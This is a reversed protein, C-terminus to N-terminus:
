AAHARVQVNHPAVWVETTKPSGVLKAFVRGCICEHGLLYFLYGERSTVTVTPDWEQKQNGWPCPEGTVPQQLPECTGGTLKYVCKECTHLSLGELSQGRFRALRHGCSDCERWRNADM